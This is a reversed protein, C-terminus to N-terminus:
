QHQLAKLLDPEYDMYKMFDKGLNGEALHLM